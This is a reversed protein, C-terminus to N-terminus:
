PCQIAQTLIEGRDTITLRWCQGNPSTMIVGKSSSDLYVDGQSVQLKARPNTTGVGVNGDGRILFSTRGNARFGFNVNGRQYSGFAFEM